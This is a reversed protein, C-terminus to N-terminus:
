RLKKIKRKKFKNEITFKQGKESGYIEHQISKAHRTAAHTVPLGRQRTNHLLNQEGLLMHKM